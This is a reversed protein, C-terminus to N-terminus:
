FVKVIPESTHLLAQYVEDANISEKKDYEKNKSIGESIIPENLPEAQEQEKARQILLGSINKQKEQKLHHLEQTFLASTKDADRQKLPDELREILGKLNDTYFTAQHSARTVDIEHSRHTTVVLRDELELAILLKSTAGQSSYATNTYAYDWHQDAKDKLNLRVQNHKNALTLEENLVYLVEYEENAIIGKKENNQRLRIRDGSTLPREHAKYFSPLTKPLISASITFQNDSEDVCLLKNMDQKIEKITFYENKKAVSYNKGFRIVDGPEFTKAHVQDAKDISIPFLRKCAVDKSGLQYQARLGERILGEVPARDEHAHIVILTNKQCSPTRSLFDEAIAHYIPTYKKKGEDDTCDIEVVSSQGLHKISAERTVQEEPNINKLVEFAKGIERKSALEATKKLEPNPNQRVIEEMFATKQSKSKITLEHPIGSALTQLQTIDGTFVMRCNIEICKKQLAHYKENDIMSSEDVILLHHADLAADNRLFSDITQAKIGNANLEEVAKHTPALGLVKFHNQESIEKVERMMTTKGVGALGQISVFRDSTTAVLTIADKQGQTLHEPLSLLKQRHSEIPKLKNQERLNAHLIEEEINLAEQTTWYTDLYLLSDSMREKLLPAIDEFDTKGLGYMLAHTMLDSHKFAANRESCKALAYHLATKAVEEKNQSKIDLCAILSNLEKELAANAFAMDRVICDPKKQQIDFATWKIQEKELFRLAKQEHSTFLTVTQAYEGVEGLLNRNLQYPEASIFVQETAPKIEQPKKCYDYTFYLQSLENNNLFLTQNDHLVTIGEETINSVKFSSKAAYKIKQHYLVRENILQEGVAVDLVKPRSVRYEEKGDLPFDSTKGFNNQLLLSDPKLELVTYHQPKQGEPHFSVIDGIQYSKPYKKEAATMSVSTLM